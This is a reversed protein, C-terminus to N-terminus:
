IKGPPENGPDVNKVTKAQDQENQGITALAKEIRNALETVYALQQDIAEAGHSYAGLQGKGDGVMAVNAAVTSPDQSPPKMTLLQAVKRKMDQLRVKYGNLEDLMKKATDPELAFGDQRPQSEWPHYISFNTDEWM